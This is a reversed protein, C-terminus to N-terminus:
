MFYPLSKLHRFVLPLVAPSGNLPRVVYIVGQSQWRVDLNFKLSTGRVESFEKTRGFDIGSVDLFQWFARGSKVLQITNAGGVYRFNAVQTSQAKLVDWKGSAPTKNVATDLMAAGKQHSRSWQTYKDRTSLQNISTKIFKRSRGRFYENFNYSTM